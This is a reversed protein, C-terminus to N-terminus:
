CSAGVGVAAQRMCAFKTTVIEPRVWERQFKCWDPNVSGNEDRYLMAYPVFGAAITQMMRQEAKDFTDGRYGCLVYCSLVHSSFTFGADQLMKGAHVLPEYDDATDYACYLREPKLKKLEECHWPKMIKAELGGTFKPARSQEALMAFVARVHSESCQLLNSDLIDYGSQIPLERLKGERRPVMCFWCNNNCGRSTMSYGIKVYRGPVFECGKDNCAPGGVKVPVGVAEWQKALWEAIRLDYTFTVSVHVEDVEPMALLPPLATEWIPNGNRDRKLSWALSDMPTARNRRPFVRAIRTEHM